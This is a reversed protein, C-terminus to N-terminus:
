GSSLAVALQIVAWGVGKGEKRVMAVGERFRGLPLPSQQLAQLSDLGATLDRDRENCGKRHFIRLKSTQTL